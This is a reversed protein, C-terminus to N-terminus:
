IDSIQPLGASLQLDLRALAAGRTRAITGGGPLADHPSDAEVGRRESACLKDDLEIPFPERQIITSVSFHNSLGRGM